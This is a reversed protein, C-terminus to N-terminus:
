TGAKAEAQSTILRLKPSHQSPRHDKSTDSSSTRSRKRRSSKQTSLRALELARTLVSASTHGACTTSATRAGTHSSQCPKAGLLAILASVHEDTMRRRNSGPAVLCLGNEVVVRRLARPSMRLEAAVEHITRTTM